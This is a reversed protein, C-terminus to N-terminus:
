NGGWPYTHEKSKKKMERIEEKTSDRIIGDSCITKMPLGFPENDYDHPNFIITRYIKLWSRGCDRCYWEKGRSIVHESNCEICRPRDEHQIYIM